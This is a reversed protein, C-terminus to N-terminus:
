IDLDDLPSKINNIRKKSIHTYIETTKIINHGLLGQIVRIDIGKEHMHTAYSHRLGHLTIKKTIGANSKAKEFINRVSSTSYQKEGSGGFLWVKPHYKKYYDKLMLLVKESLSVYRDKNGKSQSIKIVKRKSVIDKIELNLLESIRLGASYILSIMAHHKKNKINILIKKINEQSLIEPLRKEKRPRDIYYVSKNRGMVKEVLFKLANVAQNQYSGSYGKKALYHLYSLIDDRSILSIEHNYFKFFNNLMFCYTKITHKSYRKTELIKLMQNKLFIRHKEENKM